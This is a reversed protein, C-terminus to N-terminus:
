SSRVTPRGSAVGTAWEFIAMIDAAELVVDDDQLLADWRRRSSGAESLLFEEARSMPVLNGKDVGYPARFVQEDPDPGAALDGDQPPWTRLEAGADTDALVGGRPDVLAPPEAQSRRLNEAHEAFVRRPLPKPEWDAPVGDGNDIMKRLTSLMGPLLMEQDKRSSIVIMSLGAADLSAVIQFRHTESEGLRQVTLEFQERPAPPKPKNGFQKIM